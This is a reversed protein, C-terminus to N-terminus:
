NRYLKVNRNLTALEGDSHTTKNTEIYCHFLTSFTHLQM